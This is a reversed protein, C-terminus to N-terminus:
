EGMNVGVISYKSVVLRGVTNSHAMKMINIGHINDHSIYEDWESASFM